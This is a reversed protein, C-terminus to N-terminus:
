PQPRLPRSTGTSDSGSGFFGSLGIGPAGNAGPAGAEGKPGAPGPQGASGQPPAPLQGVRFDRRRLTGDKVKASTVAGKQLQKPGVSNRPLVAAAYAGGSLAVFLALVSTVNAFSLHSRM